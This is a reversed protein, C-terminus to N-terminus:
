PTEKPVDSVMVGGCKPCPASLHFRFGDFGCATCHTGATGRASASQAIIFGDGNREMARIHGPDNVEMHGARNARYVTGDEMTVGTCGTPVGDREKIAPVLLRAM